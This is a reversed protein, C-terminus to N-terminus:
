PATLQAVIAGADLWVNERRIADDNFEFLHPMRFVVSRQSGPASIFGHPFRGTVRHQMACFDDSYRTRVVAMDDNVFVAMLEDYSGCTPAKSRM